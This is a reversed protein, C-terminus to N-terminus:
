NDDSKHFRLYDRVGYAFLWFLSFFIIGKVHGISLGYTDRMTEETAFLLAYVGFVYIATLVIAKRVGGKQRLKQKLYHLIKARSFHSTNTETSM